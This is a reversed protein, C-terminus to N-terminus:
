EEVTGTSTSKTDARYQFYRYDTSMCALQVTSSRLYLVIRVLNAPNKTSADQDSDVVVDFGFLIHVYQQMFLLVYVVTDYM